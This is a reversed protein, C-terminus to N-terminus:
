ETVVVDQLDTRDLIRGIIETAALSESFLLAAFMASPILLGGVVYYAVAAAAAPIVLVFALILLAGYTVIMMRANMEIGAAGTGTKLEVWAPFSVAIGNHVVLQAVIVATVALLASVAFTARAGAGPQDVFLLDPAFASGIVIAAAAALSLAIAPALVEGRILAPGRVPWTKILALHGLDQRLDIRLMGPGLLVTLAVVFMSVDGIVDGPLVGDSAIAFATVLSGLLIASVILVRRSSRGILLWNKWLIATEAPGRPALRFPSSRKRSIRPTSFHGTAVARTMKDAAETAAEEFASDSRIIWLANAGIVLGAVPLAALLRMPSSLAIFALGGGVVPTLLCAAALVRWRRAPLHGQDKANSRYMAVGASHLTLVALVIAAKATFFVAPVLHTPGAVVALFPATAAAGFLLRCIKYGILQRRTIPASFLFQVEASTFRLAAAVPLMWATALMLTAFGAAVIQGRVDGVAFHGFPGGTTRRGIMMSGVWLVVGVAILLYRPQRLRRIRLRASNRISCVTLYVFIGTV